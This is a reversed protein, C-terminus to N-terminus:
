IKSLTGDVLVLIDPATNPRDAMLKDWVPQYVNWAKNLKDWKYRGGGVEDAAEKIYEKWEMIVPWSTTGIRIGIIQTGADDQTTVVESGTQQPAGEEMLRKIAADKIVRLEYPLYDASPDKDEYDFWSLKERMFDGVQERIEQDTRGTLAAGFDDESILNKIAAGLNYPSGDFDDITLSLNNAIAYERMASLMTFSDLGNTKVVALSAPAVFSRYQISKVISKQSEKISRRVVTNDKTMVFPFYPQPLAYGHTSYSAMMEVKRRQAIEPVIDSFGNDLFGKENIEDEISAADNLLTDYDASGPYILEGGGRVFEVLPIRRIGNDGKVGRIAYGKSVNFIALSGDNQRSFTGTVIPKGDVVFADSEATAKAIGAPYSGKESAQRVFNATSEDIMSQAMDVEMQWENAIESDDIPDVYFSPYIQSKLMEEMKEDNLRNVRRAAQFFDDITSEEKQADPRSSRHGQYIKGSAEIQRRMGSVRANLESLIQKNKAVASQTAKPNNIRDNLILIQKEYNFVSIIRRIVFEAPSPNNQLFLRQKRITDINIMQKERNTTARAEAEKAAITEQLRKMADSDGVTDILAEMQEKSLGGTVAVSGGGDIDMVQGIWDAKKNVMSRKSTDFTGDADYHYANVRQTKNGQRVGRGNRQELSDPTWGITLHHIAQTGKQLNIGVEAKENAIVTRYKNDDGNANFGDQVALIEDPSNNTKGTIIAIASSPVGARKSLLRKIKNHLPLIDCFIIQKVISSVGGNEDVGRPTAQENQFNELLAALKPPVSVDLDLGQNEATDEFASQSIPNITDVVIRNGAIIRARVAIKLLEYNDGSSDKVIKKGIIASEETMPGPRAREESIKKANFTDIVAKAKDAQPQIFTYFTARQDLEPDAILMTMKNILNFPHGILDIDEGFHRSVENFADKSGRNPVKETIEDIAFRFAAKYLRLRSVIDNTLTVQSAKDERDPVVIQEGVDDANKISATEDIAKRLVEVNNLGVFVDTTRAVGDMTVDDQNEKQVFINMFDDAGKIGLCMDNVREHGSSLSLMSYVELPSNTIPTATLLLVGDGLPSKVRIYWAKAQADIGRKAAPAMSLFKASKFDITEASNKFMHAEDIVISDVGLDELYPASGTKSSLVSMLGSQKGKAREDAKKDESSSFSEDAKRLFLEYEHITEDRLRIREFAELTMFIKRHRNEMVSVLDTDFNSSSVTAKGNKDVRLGIFLSDDMTAYARTAEKRWNSLVSNPVVIFTKNKVGISQVYQIASLAQFTKGLGTGHGNIGEFNRSMRRVFANQYGHLTIDGSMGAIVLPSEDDVQSFRLKSPDGAKSQMRDMIAKNGRVWGNFQENATVVKRRLISLGQTDSMDLKAGGLTITGNKLYDGIRNLLKENDSLKSGPVHIDVNKHGTKEDFVVSASPHVFRRLFEAKEECSVYPSFLNFTLKSVDIKDLRSEADLKQRLLKARITEDTAQAIEANARRLFDAYNGTYYDDARTVHRGDPSICWNSDEIPNFDHGFIGRADDISAWISRSKYRLGEFGSDATIELPTVSQQVDGRWVASFGTKKQYHNGMRKMADRLKGGLSSPRSKAASYVVQMADSLAPYEDIYKVGTEESLREDLVQSVALGVVGANWYKARDGHEPLRRLENVAARMWGPIDLAQSTDNMYDFLKSADSWQIRNEFASYPTALKGLLGAMDTSEENRAMPVWRGDQMQLTQGSQTITDGDRYVIPSTETTGLLDWDIRSDPFRRLMRAIEPMSAPNMVRDVDRFKNPDKPVFEGLIFRKGETNFYQGEIFTQWLVNADILTQPSQERLEVIKDLTERDYKRFAIVDTMTDASATGFVSNPLRYAGMVEAMYSAKVRLDEEKGGKGSVCRPPTIFVALGGPKLKELSRLIFYNQLPEKQYRNDHLQNGGRDAVGGFPVNTVIADYQVDPTNAAVKEFPSVTAVYGPGDNVLGNIRGSTENLEVADIAASLPATAGFIGVGASPDLVKGGEFGLEELLTWIGEAIPKPTYYEYASGKKGDAGILAGGTGSYKALTLRQEGTLKNPDIEGADIRALLSMAAENDKKRQSQKRNPDFEYYQSTPERPAIVDENDQQSPIQDPEQPTVIEAFKQSVLGLRIMAESKVKQAQRKDSFSPNSALIKNQKLITSQVSRKEAFSIM